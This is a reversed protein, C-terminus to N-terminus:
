YVGSRYYYNSNFKYNKLSLRFSDLIDDYSTDDKDLSGDVETATSLAVILKEFSSHIAVKEREILMKAHQLMDKHELSFPVPIVKMINTADFRQIEERTYRDYNPDEGLMRKLSKIFAPNSGDVYIKAIAYKRALDFVVRLM